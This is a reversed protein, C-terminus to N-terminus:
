YGQSIFFPKIVMIKDIFLFHLSILYIKWSWVAKWLGCDSELSSGNQQMPRLVFAQRGPADHMWEDLM